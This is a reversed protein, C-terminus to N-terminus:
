PVCAIREARTEAAMICAQTQVKLSNSELGILTGMMGVIARDAAESSAGHAQILTLAQAQEARLKGIESYQNLVLSAIVGIAVFWIWFRENRLGERILDAIDKGALGLM